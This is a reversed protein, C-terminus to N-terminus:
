VKKKVQPSCAIATKDNLLLHPVVRRLWDGEPIMDADLGALLESSGLCESEEIGASLNGAKFYSKIALQTKRSFYIITTKRHLGLRGNLVNIAQRLREDHGDDLLFIRLQKSPYDQAAAAAVTNVIIDLPEGCCTVLVDVSPATNGTLRLSPRPTTDNVSFLALIINFSTVATQFTLFFEALVAVWLQWLIDTTEKQLLSVYRFQLSTYLIWSAWAVVISTKIRRPNIESPIPIAPSQEITYPGRRIEIM